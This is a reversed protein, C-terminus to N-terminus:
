YGARKDVINLLPEGRRFRELNQLFCRTADDLWSVTHDACHPSLLVNDLRWFAHEVPLPETEFVDLAAGKLRREELARVLAPEDVVAGRGVNVLVSTPKLARLATEGILRRTDSTLPLAVAVDDARALVDRLETVTAVEHVLGDNEVQASRRRVAIVRMGFPRVREAIARGIDGYGVIALTRGALEEVDFPEWRGAAQNRTMRRLDKAFYLLGAVVFEALSRSFVGRANTLIATSEVLAPFLVGEVGAYRSHVWRVAPARELVPALVRPGHGCVFLVDPPPAGAFAEAAAGTVFTVGAPPPSLLQLGPEGARALVWVTAPKM